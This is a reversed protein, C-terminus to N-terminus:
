AARKRFYQVGWFLNVLVWGIGTSVALANLQCSSIFMWTLVIRLIMHGSAGILPLFVRGCGEFYGAFTNGTFCLTYFLSIIQM